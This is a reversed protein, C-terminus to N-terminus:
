ATGDGARHPDCMDFVMLGDEPVRRNVWEPHGLSSEADHLGDRWHDLMSLRSFEYDKSGSEYDAHRYILHMLSVPQSPGAEILLKLDPDDRLTEPLRARLRRAARSLAHRTRFEDTNFRTRSSFRIERERQEVRAMTHPLGDRSPYLDVQYVCLPRQCPKELVVQLPSNSVLGGDWYHRGDIEVAPFGPPLAGSAMIHDATIRTKRSDFCTFNGTEIDVACVTVRPGHDNLYDFDVLEHLTDRLPATDYWSTQRMVGPLFSFMDPLRPRFFGPAGLFTTMAARGENCFSRIQDPLLGGELPTGMLWPAGTVGEWFRRLAELRAGPPNGAILAANISGISIGALWEPEQEAKCLAEYAGAQYAGLAGGGQLVLVIKEPNKGETQVM